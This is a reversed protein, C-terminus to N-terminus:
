GSACNTDGPPVTGLRKRNLRSQLELYNAIITENSLSKGWPTEAEYEFNLVPTEKSYRGYMNRTKDWDTTLNKIGFKGPHNFIETGPRVTFLSLLVMDPGTEEIFRWTREVIDEPEGPLGAIMYIRVEIGAEKLLGITRKATEVDIRKNISDLSKQWVSEVGMGLAICKAQAALRAIEPSIGDVRCQARWYMGTRGMAELFRSAKAKGPPIGIEDLLSVGDLHYERKLYAMEEEVLEPSRYRIGPGAAKIQPMACFDCSYPCGRSFMVTTGLLKDFGPKNNLTLMGRRAISSAPLFKRLPYPYRNIDVAETQRYVAKLSGSMVDKVAQVISNEGEGIVLSDFLKRAEEEFISAHPGGALHKAKPYNKRLARVISAQEEYDLTYVSHLYLDCEPIHYIAFERKIGRLDVLSLSVAGGFANELVTLIQFHTHPDGKFPDYLYESSPFIFGIRLM